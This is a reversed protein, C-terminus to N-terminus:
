VFTGLDVEIMWKQRDGHSVDMCEVTFHVQVFTVAQGISENEMVKTDSRYWWEDRM